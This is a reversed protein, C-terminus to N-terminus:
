VTSDSDVTLPGSLERRIRCAADATLTVAEPANM